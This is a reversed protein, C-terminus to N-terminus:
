KKLKDIKDQLEKLQAQEEKGFDEAIKKKSADEANVVVIELVTDKRSEVERNTWPSYPNPNLVLHKSENNEIGGSIEYNFDEDIWPVSRGPTILKGHFYIRSLAKGTNNTVTFDIVPNTMFFIKKTYYKPSSVAINVLAKKSADAVAKKIELEKIQKDIKEIAVSIIQKPTKGDIEGFIKPDPKKSLDSLTALVEFINGGQGLSPFIILQYAIQFKEYEDVKMEKKILALSQQLKEMSSADIKRNMGQGCGVLLVIMILVILLKKMKEGKGHM